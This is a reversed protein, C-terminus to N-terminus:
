AGRMKRLAEGYRRASALLDARDNRIDYLSRNQLAWREAKNLLDAVAEELRQAKRRILQSKTM